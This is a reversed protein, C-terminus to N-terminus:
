WPIDDWWSVCLFYAVDDVDFRWQFCWLMLTMTIYMVTVSFLSQEM